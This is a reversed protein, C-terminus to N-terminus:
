VVHFTQKRVVLYICLLNALSYIPFNIKQCLNFPWWPWKCLDTKKACSVAMQHWWSEKQHCLSEDSTTLLLKASIMCVKKSDIHCIHSQTCPSIVYNTGATLPVIQHVFGDWFIKICVPNPNSRICFLQVPTWPGGMSWTKISWGMSRTWPGGRIILLFDGRNIHFNVSPWPM